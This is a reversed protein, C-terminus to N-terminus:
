CKCKQLSMVLYVLLKMKVLSQNDEIENGESDDNVGDEQSGDFVISYPGAIECFSPIQNQNVCTTHVTNIQFCTHLEDVKNTSTCANSKIHRTVNKSYPSVYHCTNCKYLTKGEDSEITSSKIRKVPKRVHKPHKCSKNEHKARNSSTSFTM